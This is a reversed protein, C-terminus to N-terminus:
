IEAHSLDLQLTKALLGAEHIHTLLPLSPTSRQVMTSRADLEEEIECKLVINFLDWQSKSYDAHFCLPSRVIGLLGFVKDHIRSCMANRSLQLAEKWTLSNSDGSLFWKKRQVLYGLQELGDDRIWVRKPTPSPTSDQPKDVLDELASYGFSRTTLKQDL